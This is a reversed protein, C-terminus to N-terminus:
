SVYPQYVTGNRQAERLLRKNSRLLWIKMVIACASSALGLAMMGIFASIYRPEEKTVFM